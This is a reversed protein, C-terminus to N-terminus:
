EFLGSISKLRRRSALGHCVLACRDVPTGKKLNDSFHPQIEVKTSPLTKVGCQLKQNSIALTNGSAYYGKDSGVTAAYATM